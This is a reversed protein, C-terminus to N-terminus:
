IIIMMIFEVFMKRVVSFVLFYRGQNRLAPVLDM